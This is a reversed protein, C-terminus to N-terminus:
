YTLGKGAWLARQEATLTSRMEEVTQRDPGVRFQYTYRELEPPQADAPIHASHAGSSNLFILVRNPRFDVEAVCECQADPIWHPSAGRAEQDENVRLVQTGWRSDDGPKALYMLCTIFGWKPDRHPPIRYGPRRLMIRGDSCKMKVAPLPDDGLAPFSQRVWDTLAGRFKELILPALVTSAAVDAMHAWVVSSYKPAFEFPVPLQQKNVARDAFLELPPIAAILANYYASPFLNDVVCYPFPDLHLQARNIAKRAHHELAIDDLMAHFAAIRGEAVADQRLIARLQQEHLGITEVRTALARVEATLTMLQANLRESGELGEVQLRARAREVMSRPSFLSAARAFRKV